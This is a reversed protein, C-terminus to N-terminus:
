AHGAPTPTAGALYSAGPRGPREHSAPGIM